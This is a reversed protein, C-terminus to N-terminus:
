DTASRWGVVTPREGNTALFEKVALRVLDISIESDRPFDREHGTYRYYVEEHRSTAGAAYWTGGGMYRLGGVGDEANVGILMEHDPVGSPLMPRSLAYLTAVSNDFPEALLADVLRDADDANRLIVPDDDHEHRFYAEVYVEAM